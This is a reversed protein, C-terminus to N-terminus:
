DLSLFSDPDSRSKRQPDDLQYKGFYIRKLDAVNRLPRKFRTVLRTADAKIRKRKSSVINVPRRMCFPLIISM